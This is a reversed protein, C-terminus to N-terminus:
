HPSMTESNSPSPLRTGCEMEMAIVIEEQVSDDLESRWRRDLAARAQRGGIRGLAWAAHGRVLPEDHSEMARVLVPVDADSGVNGLAIAANRALGRRKTRPVPTGFYTDGFEEDTMSLLWHLSPYSNNISAAILETDDAPRAAGTYPCVEQCVDCGYVWNGMKSRIERPIPGREEITLFSICTPADITYPAVIAGTPCSDVCITCRGCNKDMPKDPVLDLDVVMEGLLLWSGHGPSIICSHKGYWGLGSRAAIAREVIRATDILLRAEIPHGVHEEMAAHMAKLRRKIVRHYDRGWAYRSIRGRLVGDDPMMTPGPWYSLGVSIISQAAQHLNRVDSSFHARESTFWDMGKVHGADIHRDLHAAVDPFPAATTVASVALGCRLALLKVEATLAARPDAPERPIPTIPISSVTPTNM